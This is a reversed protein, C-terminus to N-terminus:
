LNGIIKEIGIKPIAMLSLNFADAIDPSHKLRRKMVEKSEVVRRGISDVVYIPTRLEECLKERENIPLRSISIKGEIALESAEFWLSSRTNPFERWRVAESSSNVGYFLYQGRNDVVGGGVGGEDILVPIKYEPQNKSAYKNCFEKIKEAFEKTSLGRYEKM